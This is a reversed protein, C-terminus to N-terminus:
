LVDGSVASHRESSRRTIARERLAKGKGESADIASVRARTEPDEAGYVLLKSESESVTGKKVAIGARERRRLSLHHPNDSSDPPRDAEVELANPDTRLGEPWLCLQEDLQGGPVHRGPGDMKQASRRTQAGATDMLIRHLLGPILPETRGCLPVPRLDLLPRLNSKAYLPVRLAFPCKGSNPHSKLVAELAWVNSCCGGFVLSIIMAWEGAGAELLTQALGRDM